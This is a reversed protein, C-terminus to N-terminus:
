LEYEPESRGTHCGTKNNLFYDLPGDIPGRASIGVDMTNRVKGSLGGTELIPNVM